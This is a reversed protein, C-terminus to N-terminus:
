PLITATATVDQLYYYGAQAGQLSAGDLTVTKGTGPDPTDFSAGTFVLSCDDSPLVGRPDAPMDGVLTVPGIQAITNGDYPKDSATFSAVLHRVDMSGTVPVAVKGAPDSTVLGVRYNRAQAGALSIGSVTVPINEGPHAGAYKLILRAQDLRCDDGPRVGFLEAGALPADLLGDYEKSDIYVGLTLLRRQRRPCFRSWFSM